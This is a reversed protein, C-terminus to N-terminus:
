RLNYTIENLLILFFLLSHVPVALNTEKHRDETPISLKKQLISKEEAASNKRM